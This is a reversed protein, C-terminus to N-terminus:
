KVKNYISIAKLLKGKKAKDLAEENDKVMELVNEKTLSYLIGKEGKQIFDTSEKDMESTISYTNIKGISILFVWCSDNPIGTIKNGDPDFRYVEKTDKPKFVIKNEKKGVEITNVSDSINIRAYVEKLSDNLLVITYDYKNSVKGNNWNYFHYSGNWHGPITVNGRPTSIRTPPSYYQSHIPNLFLFLMCLLACYELKILFINKV